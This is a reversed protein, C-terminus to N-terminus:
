PATPTPTPTATAAEFPNSVITGDEIVWYSTGPKPGGTLHDAPYYFTGATNQTSHRLVVAAIAGIIGCTAMVCLIIVFWHGALFRLTRSSAKRRRHGNNSLVPFSQLGVSSYEDGHSQTRSVESSTEPAAYTAKPQQPLPVSFSKIPSSQSSSDTSSLSSRRDTEKGKELASPNYETMVQPVVPATPKSKNWFM